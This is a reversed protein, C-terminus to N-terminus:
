NETITTKMRGARQHVLILLKHFSQSPLSQNHPFSHRTRISLAMSQLGKICNETSPHVINGGQQKVQSWVITSNIFIIDVEKLLDGTHVGMSLAGSGATPWWQGMSGGSVGPCESVPLDPYTEQLTVSGKEQARICVINQKHGGLTNGWGQTLEPPEITPNIIVEELLAQVVGLDAADLAM